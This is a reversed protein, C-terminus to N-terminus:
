VAPRNNHGKQSTLFLCSPVNSSKKKPKKKKKMKGISNQGNFNDRWQNQIYKGNRQQM